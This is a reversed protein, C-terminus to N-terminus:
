SVNVHLHWLGSVDGGDAQGHLSGAVGGALGRTWSSAQTRHAIRGPIEASGLAGKGAHPVRLLLAGAGPPHGGARAGHFFTPPRRSERM